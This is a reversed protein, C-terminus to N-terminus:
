RGGHSISVAARRLEAAIIEGILNRRDITEMEAFGPSTM